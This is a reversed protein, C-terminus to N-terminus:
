RQDTIPDDPELWRGLWRLVERHWEISNAPKLVWHNEDPFVLLRSDIGRRQLATFTAIGQSLPVRFDQQGHVVLMPRRWSEVHNAPNVKEYHEPVEYYPGGFEWEPFWLEETSYYMSRLDFLGDHNVFCRFPENWNGAIWNIMYGGYSAGLACIRDADLWPYRDLAAALGAKLDEVPKGAWDGSISDTFAQGYGTSGHFDVFVSAYGAGAYTQPNWRYSWSNGFSGQPGGHIIFAVPYHRRSDFNAPTVVYAYVTADQAGRFTFQEARGMAIGKLRAANTRTLEVLDGGSPDLAYLDAPASLSALALVIRDDAVSYDDVHGPGTLMRPRGSKVDVAWLPHQGFHDTTTYLTRDDASFALDSASRDWDATLSRTSGEKLDRVMIEFRDAEFGPRRMARWALLRGNHSFVPGTDWAPNDATLNVPEAGGDAPVSYLDFNTSWPETRGRMRAAFVVQRADASFTYENETGFPESPVDADLQGSLVAPDGSARGDELAVAFLESTRGDKWTDWHRIFLRDYVAGTAPSKAAKDNRQATCAFDACDAFVRATFALRAGDPSVMFTDVDIPFATVPEAEGGDLSLRWIQSSGGRSSLFFLSRGDPSWRPSSDNEPSSTLRRPQAGRTRLDLLWVDSRRRNADLDTMTVTYAVTGGDPALVPGAVRDLTALDQVTFPQRDDARAGAAAAAALVLACLRRQAHTPM